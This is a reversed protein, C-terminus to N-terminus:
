AKMDKKISLDAATGAATIAILLLDRGGSTYAGIGIGVGHEAQSGPPPAVVYAGANTLSVRAYTMGTTPRNAWAWGTINAAVSHAFAAHAHGHFDLTLTGGSFTATGSPLTSRNGWTTATVNALDADAKASLDSTAAAGIVLRAAAPTTAAVMASGQSSVTVNTAISGAIASATAQIDSLVQAAADASGAAEEAVDAMKGLMPGFNKAAGGVGSLGKPNEVADYEDLNFERLETTKASM